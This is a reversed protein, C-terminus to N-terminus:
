ATPTSTRRDRIRTYFPLLLVLVALMWWVVVYSIHQWYFGAASQVLQPAPVRDASISQGYDTQEDTAIIYGDYLSVNPLGALLSPDLRSLVTASGTAHDTPQRPYLRGTVVVPDTLTQQDIGAMGRVVLVDGAKHGASAAVHLLRVELTAIEKKSSNKRKSNTTAIEQNPATYIHSYVGTARVLRNIALGSLDTGPTAIQNLEAIPKEPQPKGANHVAQARHLQWIGLEYATVSLALAAVLPIVYAIRQSIKPRSDSSITM